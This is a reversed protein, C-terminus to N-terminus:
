VASCITTGADDENNAVVTTTVDVFQRPREHAPFLAPLTNDACELNDYLVSGNGLACGALISRPPQISDGVMAGTRLIRECLYTRTAM